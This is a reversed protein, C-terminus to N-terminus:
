VGCGGFLFTAGKRMMLTLVRVCTSSRVLQKWNRKIRAEEPCRMCIFVEGKSDMDEMAVFEGGDCPTVADKNEESACVMDSGEGTCYGLAELLSLAIDVATRDGEWKCIWRLWKEPDDKAEKLRSEYLDATQKLYVLRDDNHGCFDLLDSYNLVRDHRVDYTRPRFSGDNQLFAAAHHISFSSPLRLPTLPFRGSIEEEDRLALLYGNDPRTIGQVLLKNAVDELCHRRADIAIMVGSEVLTAWVDEPLTKLNDDYITNEENAKLFASIIDSALTDLNSVPVFEARCVPPQRGLHLSCASSESLKLSNIKDRLLFRM